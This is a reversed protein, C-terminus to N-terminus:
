HSILTYLELHSPKNSFSFGFILPNKIFPNQGLHKLAGKGYPPLPGVISWRHPQLFSSFYQWFWLIAVRLICIILSCNKSLYLNHSLVAHRTENTCVCWDCQLFSYQSAFMIMRALQSDYRLWLILFLQLISKRKGYQAARILPILSINESNSLFISVAWM